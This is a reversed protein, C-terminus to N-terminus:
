ETTEQRRTRELDALLAAYAWKRQGAPGCTGLEWKILTQIHVNLHDAMRQRPWGARERIARAVTPHPLSLTEDAPLSSM